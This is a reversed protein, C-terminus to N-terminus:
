INTLRSSQKDKNMDRLYKIDYKEDTKWVFLNRITSQVKCGIQVKREEKKKKKKKKFSIVCLRSIKSLNLKLPNRMIQRILLLGLCVHTVVFFAHLSYM